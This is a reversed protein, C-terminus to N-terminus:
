ESPSHYRKKILLRILIGNEKIKEPLQPCFGKCVGDSDSFEQLLQLGIKAFHTIPTFERRTWGAALCAIQRKV